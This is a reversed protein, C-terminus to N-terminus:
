TFDNEKKMEPIVRNVYITFSNFSSINFNDLLCPNQVEIKKMPGRLCLSQSGLPELFTVLLDKIWTLMTKM